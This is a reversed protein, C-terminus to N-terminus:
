IREIYLDVAVKFNNNLDFLDKGTYVIKEEVGLVEGVYAKERENWHYTGNYGKYEEPRLRFETEGKGTIVTCDAATFLKVADKIDFLYFRTDREETEIYLSLKKGDEIGKYRKGKELTIEVFEELKTELASVTIDENCVLYVMNM